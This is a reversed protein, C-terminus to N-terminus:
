KTLKPAVSRQGGIDPPDTDEWFLMEDGADSCVVTAPGLPKVTPERVDGEGESSFSARAKQFVEPDHDGPVGQQVADARHPERTTLRRPDQAHVVESETAPGAVPRNQHIEFPVRQHINQGVAARVGEGPPEPFMRTHLHHAPITSTLVCLSCSSGYGIGHLNRVAEVEQLVESIHNRSYEPLVGLNQVEDRGRRVTKM